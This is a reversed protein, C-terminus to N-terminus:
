LHSLAQTGHDPVVEPSSSGQPLQRLLFPSWASHGLTVGGPHLPCAQFLTVPGHHRHRDVLLHEDLLSCALSTHRPGERAGLTLHLLSKGRGKQVLGVMQRFMEQTLPVSQPFAWPWAAACGHVGNTCPPSDRLGAPM